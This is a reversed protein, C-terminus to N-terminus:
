NWGAQVMLTYAEQSFNALTSLVIDQENFSGWSQLVPHPLMDSRIPYEFNEDAFVRQATESLLFNIFQQGREFVNSHRALGIGSINVHTGTTTQNPFFISLRQAVNVELPDSSFLMHGMYYTNMIAVDAIGSYVAKAQERDNGVPQRNQTLPDRVAFRAVLGELWTRTSETGNLALLSAVLSQNYVHTSSRTAIRLSSSSLAEYTSLASVSTENADYVLVRARKTLGVWQNDEDVFKSPITNAADLSSFPQFLNKEKARQLRGVDTLFVLDAPSQAGENELRTILADADMKLVNVQIGTAEKFSDFLTQDVDYHRDTYLNLAISSSKNCGVLIILTFVTGLWSFFKRM